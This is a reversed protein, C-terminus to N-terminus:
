SGLAAPDLVLVASGDQAMVPQTSFFHPLTLRDVLGGEISGLNTARLVPAARLTEVLPRKLEDTFDSKRFFLAHTDESGARPPPFALVSDVGDVYKFTYLALELAERRILRGRGVSADGQMSCRSGGGCLIYMLGNQTDVFSFDEASRVVPARVAVGRIAIRTDGNQISPPGPIIAVLQNSADLRYRRGVFSAIEEIRAGGATSPKWNSWEVHHESPRGNLVIFTGVAVGVVAALLFYALGFRYRFAVPEDPPPREVPAQETTPSEPPTADGGPSPTLDDAM